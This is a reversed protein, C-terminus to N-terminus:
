EIRIKVVLDSRSLQDQDCVWRLLAKSRNCYIIGLHQAFIGLRKFKVFFVAKQSDNLRKDGVKGPVFHPRFMM